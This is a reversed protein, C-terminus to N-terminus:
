ASPYHVEGERVYVSEFRCAARVIFVFFRGPSLWITHTCGSCIKSRIARAAHFGQIQTHARCHMDIIPQVDARHRRIRTKIATQSTGSCVSFLEASSKECTEASADPGRSPRRSASRNEIASSSHNIGDPWPVEPLPRRGSITGGPATRM